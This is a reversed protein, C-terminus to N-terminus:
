SAHVKTEALWTALLREESPSTDVLSERLLHEAAALQVCKAVFPRQKRAVATINHTGRWESRVLELERYGVAPFVHEFKRAYWGDPHVAWAAEHSGFIHRLALGQLRADRTRRFKRVMREFDPTEVMLKGGDVLWDYWRILLGFATGRTFHEFVHHLRIEAVSESPYELMRLDAYVDARTESQVSHQEPPFDVNIYGPLYVEGCGLHLRLPESSV